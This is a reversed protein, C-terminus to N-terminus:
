KIFRLLFDNIGIVTFGNEDRMEKIPCNIVIVKQIESKLIMYPRMERTRTEASSINDTVQIYYARNNKRAYFDIENTKRVSKGNKDKDITDFVGVNVSYGNYVLENYVINELLIGDDDYAFDLRANRLGTDVFYYKRLAGIEARGKIDYRKAERLIFADAFCEIYKEVTQATIKEHKVSQYTNAIKESNILSGTEASLLNCLEDLSDSKKLRNREIIDKFYVIEFLSKLYNKKDEGNKLVCLPMGGYQMYEYIAETEPLGAYNYFEDYSLPMLSINVAKDRFASVVDSSLMKSNSGTVYLDINEERSLGLVVDVFGVAGDDGNKALVIKGGTLCPNLITYVDQIEDIFVYCKGKGVCYARVYEGLLIPNRYKVNRDDDLEMILINDPHVNDEILYQKYLEKLLFSKGCRRIGTIVKPFGNDRNQILKDLYKDRKIM